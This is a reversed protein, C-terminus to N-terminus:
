FNSPTKVGKLVKVRSKGFRIAERQSANIQRFFFFWFFGLMLLWPISGIILNWAISKEKSYVQVNKSALLRVLEPDEFPLTLKFRLYEKKDFKQPERFLGEISKGSILVQSVNGQEVHSYFDTFSIELVGKDSSLYNYLTLFVLFILIWVVLNRLIDSKM